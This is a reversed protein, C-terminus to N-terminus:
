TDVMKCIIKIIVGGGCPASCERLPCYSYAIASLSYNMSGTLEESSGFSERLKVSLTTYNSLFGNLTGRIVFAGILVVWKWGPRRLKRLCFRWKEKDTIKTSAAVAPKQQRLMAADMQRTNNDMGAEDKGGDMPLKCYSKETM